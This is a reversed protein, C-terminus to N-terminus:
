AVVGIRVFGRSGLRRVKSPKCALIAAVAIAVPARTIM